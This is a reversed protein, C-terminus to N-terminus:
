GRTRAVLLLGLGLGSLLGALGWLPLLRWLRSLEASTFEPGHAHLGTKVAMLFFTLFVAAVGCALGWLAMILLGRVATFYRGGLLRGLLYAQGTLMTLLSFFLVQQFDGELASWVVASIAWLLILWKLGPIQDPIQMVKTVTRDSFGFKSSDNESCLFLVAFRCM